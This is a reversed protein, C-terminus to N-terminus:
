DGHIPKEPRHIPLDDHKEDHRHRGGFGGDPERHDDRQEPMPFREVRVGERREFPSPAKSSIGSSGNRPNRKLAVSPRRRDFPMEPPTAVPAIASDNPTAAEATQPTIWAAGTPPTRVM